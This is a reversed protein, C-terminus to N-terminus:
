GKRMLPSYAPEPQDLMWRIGLKLDHSTIDKFELPNPVPGNSGDFGIMDGSLADGLNLYRYAFEITLAPTVRYALGAHLAWALNWKGTDGAYAYSQTTAAGCGGGTCTTYGVDTFNSIKNYSAGVGAGIFPTVSYWTGLDVYANFMALWESKSASYNNIGNALTGGGPNWVVLDTGHFNAKGRYEGIVDARLWSNFQYGIGLGFFPAADFSKEPISVTIDAAHFGINDLNKVQQNSMGIDGRLYWGSFDHMVPARVPVYAPLDAANAAPLSLLTIAGAFVFAKASGM